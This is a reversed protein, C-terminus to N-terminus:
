ACMGIRKIQGIKSPKAREADTAAETFEENRPFNKNRTELTKLLKEGLHLVSRSQMRSRLERLFGVRM